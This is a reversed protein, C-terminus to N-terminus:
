LSGALSDGGIWLRLPDNDNLPSRCPRGPITTTPTDAVTSRPTATVTGALSPRDDGGFRVTETIVLGFGVLLLGTVTISAVRKWRAKSRGARRERRTLHADAGPSPDSM